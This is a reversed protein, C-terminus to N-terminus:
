CHDCKDSKCLRYNRVHAAILAVASAVTVIIEGEHGILDHLLFAASALGVLGLVGLGLVWLDKHQWCGIGFAFAGAPLSIALMLKHFLEDTFFSIPLTTGAVLLVPVLLCHLACLSTSLVGIRDAFNRVTFASEIRM